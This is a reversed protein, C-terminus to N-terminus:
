ICSFIQCFNFHVADGAVDAFADEVLGVMSPFEKPNFGDGGDGAADEFAGAISSSAPNQSEDAPRSGSPATQPRASM